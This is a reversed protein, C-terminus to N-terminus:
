PRKPKRRTRELLLLRRVRELYALKIGSVQILRDAASISADASAYDGSLAHFHALDALFQIRRLLSTDDRVLDSASQLQREALAWDRASGTLALRAYSVHRAIRLNNDESVASLPIVVRQFLQRAFDTDKHDAAIRAIWFNYETQFADDQLATLASQYSDLVSKAMEPESSNSLVIVKGIASRAFLLDDKTVRSVMQMRDYAGMARDPEGTDRFVTAQLHLYRLYLEADARIAEDLRDRVLLGLAESAIKYWGQAVAQEAVLLLQHVSEKESTRVVPAMQYFPGRSILPITVWVTVLRLFQRRNTAADLM